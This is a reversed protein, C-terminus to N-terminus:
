VIVSVVLHNMKLTVLATMMMKMAVKKLKKQM